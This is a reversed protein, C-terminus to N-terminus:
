LLTYKYITRLHTLIEWIVKCDINNYKKIEGLDIVYNNNKSFKNYEDFAKIMADVGDMVSTDYKTKIFKNGYFSKTVEKLGFNLMGKSIISNNKFISLLDIWNNLKLENNINYKNILKSYMNKEINGWHWINYM